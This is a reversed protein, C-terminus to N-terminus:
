KAPASVPIEQFSVDDIQIEGHTMAVFGLSAKTGQSPTLLVDETHHTWDTDKFLQAYSNEKQGAINIYVYLNASVCKYWFDLRYKKNPEVEFRQIARGQQDGTVQILLSQSGSHCNTSASLTAKDATWQIPPDGSEMDGNKILEADQDNALGCPPWGVLLAALVLAAAAAASAGWQLLPKNKMITGENNTNKTATTIATRM